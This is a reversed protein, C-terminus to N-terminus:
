QVDADDSIMGQQRLFGEIGRMEGFVQQLVKLQPERLIESLKKDNIKSLRYGVVYLGYEGELKDNATEDILLATLRTLQEATMPLSRDLNALYGKVLTSLIQERRQKEAVELAELQESSLTGRLVKQLLSDRNFIGAALKQQLPVTLQYAENVANQNMEMSSVKRKLETVGDFFRKIDGEGALKMQQTQKEELPIISKVAEIKLEIQAALSKKAQEPGGQRQFIWADITSPDVQFDQARLQVPQKIALILLLLVVLRVGFMM